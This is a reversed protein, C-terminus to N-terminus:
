ISDLKTMKMKNIKRQEIYLLRKAIDKYVFTFLNFSYTFLLILIQNSHWVWGGLLTMKLNVASSKIHSHCRILTALNELM